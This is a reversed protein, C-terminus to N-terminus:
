DETASAKNELLKLATSEDTILVDIYGGKLVAKIADVKEDGAAVGIVNKLSRLKDLPTTLLRSEINSDVLNGEKDIFHCL